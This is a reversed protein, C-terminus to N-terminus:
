ALPAFVLPILSVLAVAVCLSFQVGTLHLDNALGAVKANGVVITLSKYLPHHWALTVDM